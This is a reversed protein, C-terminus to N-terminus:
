LVYLDTARKGEQGKMNILAIIFLVLLVSVSLVPLFRSGSVEVFYGWVADNTIVLVDTTGDGNFDALIPKGVALQPFSESFLIEGSGATVLTMKDDGFIVIPRDAPVEDFALKYNIRSLFGNKGHAEEHWKPIDDHRFKRWHLGGDSSYRQISGHNIAFVIDNTAEDKYLGSSSEVLLPTAVSVGLEPFEKLSKEINGTCLNINFINLSEGDLKDDSTLTSHCYQEGLEHTGKERKKFWENSGKMKVQLLDMIGDKNVDGYRIGPSLSTSCIPEGSFLSIVNIGNRNHFLVANHNELISDSITSSTDESPKLKQNSVVGGSVENNGEFYTLQIKADKPNNFVHPLVNRSPDMFWEHYDNFCDKSLVFLDIETQHDEEMITHNAEERDSQQTIKSQTSQTWLLAGSTAELAFYANHLLSLETNSSHLYYNAGIIIVGNEGIKVHNGLVMDIEEFNLQKYETNNFPNVRWMEILELEHEKSKAKPHFKTTISHMVIDGNSWISVISPLFKGKSSTVFKQENAKNLMIHGTIVKIPIHKPDGNGEKENKTQFMAGLHIPHDYNSTSHFPKLNYLNLTWGHDNELDQDKRTEVYYNSSSRSFPVVLADVIGDGDVDFPVPRALDVDFLHKWEEHGDGDSKHNETKTKTRISNISTYTTYETYFALHVNANLSESGHDFKYILQSLLLALIAAFIDRKRLNTM